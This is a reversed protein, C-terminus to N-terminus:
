KAGRFSTRISTVETVSIFPKLIEPDISKKADKLKFNERESHSLSFEWGALVASQADQGNLFPGIVSKLESLREAVIKEQAKLDIYEKAVLELSDQVVTLNKM